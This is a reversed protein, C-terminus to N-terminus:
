GRQALANRAGMLAIGLAALVGVIAIVFLAYVTWNALPGGPVLGRAGSAAGLTAAAINGYGAALAGLRLWRAQAGSLKLHPAAVGLAIVLLGNLVGELHAMLWAREAEAGWGGTVASAYPFGVLLGLLVVILGHMVLFSATRNM